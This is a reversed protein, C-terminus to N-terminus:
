TTATSEPPSSRAISSDPGKKLPWGKNCLLPSDLYFVTCSISFSSPLVFFDNLEKTMLDLSLSFVMLLM